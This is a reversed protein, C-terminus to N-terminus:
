RLMGVPPAFLANKLAATVEELPRDGDIRVCGPLSSAVVAYRRALREQLAQDDYREDPGGRRQRRALAKEPPLDIWLTLDAHRARANILKVWGGDDPEGLVEGQYVLSSMLYRDTLVWANQGLAPDIERALHDLRDAAFLLAMAREDIPRQADARVLLGRILTGIPNDSPERTLHVTYGSRELEASLLACQTTTGAGDIGEIAILRPPAPRSCQTNQGAGGIDVSASPADSM